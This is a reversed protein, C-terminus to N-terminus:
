IRLRTCVRFAEDAATSVAVSDKVYAIGGRSDDWHIVVECNGDGCQQGVCDVTIAEASALPPPLGLACFDTYWRGLAGEDDIAASCTDSALAVAGNHLLSDPDARLRDIVDYAAMTARTRLQSSDTVKLGTMQLAAVGLLGVSLVLVAVLLEILSFGRDVHIDPVGARAGRPRGDPSQSPLDSVGIVAHYRSQRTTSTDPFSSM